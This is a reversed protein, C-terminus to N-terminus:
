RTDFSVDYGLGREVYTIYFFQWLLDQVTTSSCYALSQVTRSGKGPVASLLWLM